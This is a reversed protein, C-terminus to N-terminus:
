SLLNKERQDKSSACAMKSGFRRGNVVWVIRLSPWEDGVLRHLHFLCLTGFRRCIFNLRRLIVWFFFFVYLLAICRRGNKTKTAQELTVKVKVKVNNVVRKCNHSCQLVASSVSKCSLFQFMYALSLPLSLSLSFNPFNVYLPNHTHTHTHTHTHRPLRCSM